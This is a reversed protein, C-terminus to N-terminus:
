NFLAADRASAFIFNITGPVMLGVFVALLGLSILSVCNLQIGALKISSSRLFIGRIIAVCGSTILVCELMNACLNCFSELNALNNVRITGATNVGQVITCNEPAITGSTAGQLAPAVYGNSAGALVPAITGNTAGQMLQAVTGTTTGYTAGSLTPSGFSIAQSQDAGFYVSSNLSVIGVTSSFVSAERVKRASNLEHNLQRAILAKLENEAEGSVTQCNGKPRFSLKSDISYEVRGAQWRQFFRNLDNLNNGTRIVPSFNAIESHNKFYTDEAAEAPDYAFEYLAPKNAFPSIIYIEKNYSPQRGHLWLVVGEKTQGAFESAKVLAKLNDQGGIFRVDKLKDLATNLTEPKTFTKDEASAVILSVPVGQPVHKLSERIQNLYKSTERSGDVVVVVRGPTSTINHKILRELYFAFDKTSANEQVAGPRAEDFYERFLGNDTSCALNTLPKRKCLISPAASEIQQATLVGSIYQLGDTRKGTAFGLNSNEILNESLLELNHEGEMSFNSAIIQPLQLQATELQDLQMPMAMTIQMKVQQDPELSKSKLLYKGHGLETVMGDAMMRSEAPVGSGEATFKGSVSEGDQWLRVGTVAATEPLSIEARAKQRETTENQFVMTWVLTASLQDSHLNGNLTSRVLSIGPIKEGVAYNRIQEANMQYVSSIANDYAVPSLPPADSRNEIVFPRGELAFYLKQAELKKVPLFMGVFGVSRGDACLLRLQKEIGLKRLLNLAPMRVRADSSIAQRVLYHDILSQLEGGVLLASAALSGICLYTMIRKRSSELEKTKRIKLVLQLTTLASALYILGISSLYTLFLSDQPYGTAEYEYTCFSAAICVMALILATGFALGASIGPKLGFVFNSHCVARHIKFNIIPILLCLSIGLFNEIPHSLLLLVLRKQAILGFCLPVLVPMVVGCLMVLLNSGRFLISDDPTSFETAWKDLFADQLNSQSVEREKTQTSTSRNNITSCATADVGEGENETNHRGSGAFKNRLPSNVDSNESTSNHEFM